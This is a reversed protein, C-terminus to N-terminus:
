LVKEMVRLIASRARPNAAVEASSARITRGVRKLDVHLQEHRLPLDRLFDAGHMRQHMFKKVLGDELSHFSIVLLRGNVALANWAQELFLRLENLEDNVLIRIAQFVRTAPHKTKEWKPNAESVIDALQLTRTIPQLKRAAVIARAMRRGFREEGYERFVQEMEEASAKNVWIEATLKQTADMRMDLPGDKLFSFGRAADDLQPSAVGLDLLIGQVKGMWGLESLWQQLKSFSGHRIILKGEAIAASGDAANAANSSSDMNNNKDESNRLADGLQRAARIAEVDKDIVLLRGHEDLEHLIRSAHGGRGFTADVYLGAPQLALNELVEALLVPQHQRQKSDPM